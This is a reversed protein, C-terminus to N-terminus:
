SNVQPPPFSSPSLSNGVRIKYILLNVNMVFIKWICWMTVFCRANVVLHVGPNFYHKINGNTYVVITKPNITVINLLATIWKFSKVMFKKMLECLRNHGNPDGGGGMKKLRTCSWTNLPALRFGLSIQNLWADREHRELFRLTQLWSWDSMWPWSPLMQQPM